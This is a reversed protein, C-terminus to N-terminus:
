RRARKGRKGQKGRPGPRPGSQNEEERRADRAAVMEQLQTKQAPTLIAIIRVSRNLDAHDQTTREQGRQDIARHLDDVDVSGDLLGVMKAGREERDGRRAQREAKAEAVIQDLSAQQEASLDLKSVAKLLGRGNGGKGQRQAAQGRDGRDQSREARDQSPAADATQSPISIAGLTTFALAILTKSFTSNM